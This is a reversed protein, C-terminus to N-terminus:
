GADTRGMNKRSAKVVFAVSAFAALLALVLAADTVGPTGTASGGLLLAAIGGSGLLQASMLRDATAPGHLIRMMGLAVMVVVFAAAAMMFDAM